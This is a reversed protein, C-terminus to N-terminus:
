AGEGTKAESGIRRSCSVREWATDARPRNGRPDPPGAATRISLPARTM